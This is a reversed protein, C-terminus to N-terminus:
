YHRHILIGYHKLFFWTDLFLKNYATRAEIKSHLDTRLNDLEKHIDDLTKTKQNMSKKDQKMIPNLILTLTLEVAPAYPSRLRKEVRKM